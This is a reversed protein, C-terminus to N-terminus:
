KKNKKASHLVTMDLSKNQLYDIFNIGCSTCTVIDKANLTRCNPSEIEEKPTNELLNKAQIKKTCKPCENVNKTNIHWMKPM